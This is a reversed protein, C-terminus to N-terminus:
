NNTSRTRQAEALQHGLFCTYECPKTYSGHEAHWAGPCRICCAFDPCNRCEKVDTARLKSFEEFFPSNRWVQTLSDRPYRGISICLGICPRIEGQPGVVLGTAGAGCLGADPHPGRMEALQEGSIALNYYESTFIERILATDTVRQALPSLKGDNKATISLDFQIACGLQTALASLERWHPATAKMLPTKIIVPLGAARLRKIADLSKQLSGPVQTIADHLEPRTSYISCGVSKPNLEALAALTEDNLLTLNSILSPLLRHKKTLAFIELIDPRTLLEGGTLLINLGGLDRFEGFLGDIQALTLNPIRTNEPLYCHVCKENCRYTTELVLNHFIHNDALKQSFRATLNNNADIANKVTNIQTIRSQPIRDGLINRQHLSTIFQSLVAATEQEANQTFAGNQIIYDLASQTAGNADWIRQWVAASDGELLAVTQNRTRYIISALKQDKLKYTRSFLDGPIQIKRGPTAETESTNM